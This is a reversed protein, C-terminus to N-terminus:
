ILRKQSTKVKPKPNEPAAPRTRSRYDVFGRRVSNEESVSKKRLRIFILAWGSHSPNEEGSPSLLGEDKGANKWYINNLSQQKTTILNLLHLCSSDKKKKMVETAIEHM